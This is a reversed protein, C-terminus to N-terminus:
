RLCSPLWQAAIKDTDDGWLGYEALEDTAKLTQPIIAARILNAFYRIAGLIMEKYVPQKGSDADVVLDGKFYAQGFKWLTGFDEALKETVDHVFLVCEPLTDSQDAETAAPFLLNKTSPSSPFRQHPKARNKELHSDRCQDLNKLVHAYQVQLCSWAPDGDVNLQVLNAIVKKQQEVGLSPDQLREELRAKLTDVGKEIEDLYLQFIESDTNGYLSKAREYEDIIRDFDNKVLNSEINSPLNFLFKFRNLVNIANRCFFILKSIM